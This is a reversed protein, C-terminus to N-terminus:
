QVDEVSEKMEKFIKIEETTMVREIDLLMIVKDKIKGMGTLFEEAGQTGYDPPPEIESKQINIVESVTDVVIGIQRKGEGASIEVVIICTRENYPIEDMGFKIRLDMIPIIRGRLNIIGKIFEPTKPVKTIGMMGIIEKVKHIQIGFEEEQLDFTLYKGGEASM